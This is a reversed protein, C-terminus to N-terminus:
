ELDRPRTTLTVELYLTEEGRQVTLSVTDGPNYRTLEFRLSNERALPVGNIATIIDNSQLGSVAAPTHPQVSFVFAGKQAPLDNQRAVSEDIMQYSIGLYPYTVDGYAILESSVQNFITSPVAFGLGEAQPEIGTLDADAGRVVLTNIGIVEGRLNILPGGSNGRNIAADTQILGEQSSVSRNLASVVGATVTNRFDGLPSGIALVHEGPQLAESDGVTAVAPVGDSVQIVAIDSLPDAGILTAVHLSSDAFVVELRDAGEVVHQNTIIYGQASIIVGSGSSDAFSNQQRNLVTVVAPAVQNVAAVMARSTTDVIGSENLLNSSTMTTTSLEDNQPILAEHPTPQQVARVAVSSPPYAALRQDALFYGALGGALTGGIISVVVGLIIILLLLLFLSRRMKIEM